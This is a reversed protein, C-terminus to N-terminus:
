RVLGKPRAGAARDLLQALHAVTYVNGTRASFMTNNRADNEAPSLAADYEAMVYGYGYHRLRRAINQAFCSGATVIRAQRDFGFRPTQGEYPDLVARKAPAFARDWRQADPIARYPCTAHSSM